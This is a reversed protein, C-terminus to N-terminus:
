ASDAGPDRAMRAVAEDDDLWAAVRMSEAALYAEFVDERGEEVLLLYMREAREGERPMGVALVARLGHDRLRGNLSSTAYYGWEKRTVDLETGSATVLTVVEDAGLELNAVHKLTAGRYGVEFERAPDVHEIRM